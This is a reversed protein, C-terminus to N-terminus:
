KFQNKSRLIVVCSSFTTLVFLCLVMTHLLVSQLKFLFLAASFVTTCLILLKNISGGQMTLLMLGQGIFLCLLASGYNWLQFLFVPWIFIIAIVLVLTIAIAFFPINATEKIRLILYSMSLVFFATISCSLNLFHSLLSSGIIWVDILVYGIFFLLLILLSLTISKSIYMKHASFIAFISCLIGHM